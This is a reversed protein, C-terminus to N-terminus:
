KKFEYSIKHKKHTHPLPGIKNEELYIEMQALLM